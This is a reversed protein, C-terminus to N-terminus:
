PPRDAAIQLDFGTLNPDIAVAKAAVRLLQDCERRVHDKAYATYRNRRQLLGGTRDRDHEHVNGIRNTGAEDFAHGVWAAVDGAERTELVAHAAFPGLQELLDRGVHGSGQHKTIGGRCGANSLERCNSRDRLGKTNLKRRHVYAVGALYFTGNGRECTGSITADDYRRPARRSM